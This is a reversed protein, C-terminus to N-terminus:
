LVGVRCGGDAVAGFYGGFYSDQIVDGATQSDLKYVPGLVSLLDAMM